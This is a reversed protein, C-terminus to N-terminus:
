PKAPTQPGLSLKVDVRAVGTFEVGLRRQLMRCITEVELLKGALVARPEVEPAVGAPRPGAAVEEIAAQFVSEDAQLLPRLRADVQLLLEMLNMTHRAKQM